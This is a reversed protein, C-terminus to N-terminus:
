CTIMDSLIQNLEQWLAHHNVLPTMTYLLEKKPWQHSQFSM